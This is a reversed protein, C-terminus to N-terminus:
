SLVSACCGHFSRSSDLLDFTEQSFDRIDPKNIGLRAETM